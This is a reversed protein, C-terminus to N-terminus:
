DPSGSSAQLLHAQVETQIDGVRGILMNIQMEINKFDQEKYARLVPQNKVLETFGEDGIRYGGSTPLM